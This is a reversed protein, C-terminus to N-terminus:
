QLLLDVEMADLSQRLVSLTVISTVSAALAAALATHMFSAQLAPLALLVYIALGMATAILARGRLQLLWFLSVCALFQALMCSSIIALQLRGIENEPLGLSVLVDPGILIGAVAAVGLIKALNSLGARCASTFSSLLQEIHALSEGEYVAHLLERRHHYLEPELRNVFFWLAPATCFLAILAPTISQLPTIEQGTTNSLLLRDALLIVTFIAPAWTTLDLPMKVDPTASPKLHEDLSMVLGLVFGLLAALLALIAILHLDIQLRPGHTFRLAFWISLLAGLGVILPVAMSNVRRRLLLAVVPPWLNALLVASLVVPQILALDFLNALPRWLVILGLLSLATTTLNALILPRLLPQSPESAIRAIAATPAACAILSIAVLCVFLGAAKELEAGGGMASTTLLGAAGIMIFPPLWPTSSRTHLQRAINARNERREHKLLRHLEFGIGSM